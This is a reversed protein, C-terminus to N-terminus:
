GEMITHLSKKIIIKRAWDPYQLIYRFSLAISENYLNQLGNVTIGCGMSKTYILVYISDIILLLFALFPREAM